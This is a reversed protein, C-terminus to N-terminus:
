RETITIEFESDDSGIVPYTDAPDFDMFVYCNRIMGSNDHAKNHVYVMAHTSGDTSTNNEVTQLFEEYESVSSFRVTFSGQAKVRAIERHVTYNADKWEEYEPLDNVKYTPVVIHETLDYEGMKFLQAM